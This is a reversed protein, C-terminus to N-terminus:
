EVSHWRGLYLKRLAGYLGAGVAYLSTVLFVAQEIYGIITTLDAESAGTLIMLVPIIGVLFGKVMMSYKTPDASSMLFKNM